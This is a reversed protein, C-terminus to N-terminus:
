WKLHGAFDRLEVAASAATPRIREVPDSNTSANCQHIAPPFGGAVFGVPPHDSLEAGAAEFSVRQFSPFTYRPGHGALLQLM